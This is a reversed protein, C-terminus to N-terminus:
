RSSTAFYGTVGGGGCAEEFPADAADVDGVVEEDVIGGGDGNEANWRCGALKATATRKRQKLMKFTM